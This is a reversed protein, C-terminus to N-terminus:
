DMALMQSEALREQIQRLIDAPHVPKTMVNFDHGLAQATALLDVTSAQGSFLLMKCEPMAKTLIIALEIGTMGPMMVDSLLLDPETEYALDLASAGNYATLVRYGHKRLIISLTDAIIREDDVVLVVRRSIEPFFDSDQNLVETLPVVSFRFSSSM